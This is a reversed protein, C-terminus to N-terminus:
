RKKGIASYWNSNPYKKERKAIANNIDKELKASKLSASYSSSYKLVPQEILKLCKSSNASDLSGLLRRINKENNLIRVDKKRMTGGKNVVTRLPSVLRTCTTSALKKVDDNPSELFRLVKPLQDIVKINKFGQSLLMKSSKVVDPKDRQDTFFSLDDLHDVSVKEKLISIYNKSQTKDSPSNNYLGNQMYSFALFMTGAMEKKHTKAIKIVQDYEDQEFLQRAKVAWGGTKAAYSNAGFGLSFSIFLLVILIRKLQDHRMKNGKFKLLLRIAPNMFKSQVLVIYIFCILRGAQDGQFNREMFYVWLKVDNLPKESKILYYLTNRV